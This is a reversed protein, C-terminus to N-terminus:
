ICINTKGLAPLVAQYLCATKQNSSVVAMGSASVVCFDKLVTTLSESGRKGERKKRKKM